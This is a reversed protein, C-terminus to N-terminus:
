VVIFNLYMRWTKRLDQSDGVFTVYNSHMLEIRRTSL